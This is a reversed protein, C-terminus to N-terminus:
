DESLRSAGGTRPPLWPRDENEQGQKREGVSGARGPALWTKRSDQLVNAAGSRRRKWVEGQTM